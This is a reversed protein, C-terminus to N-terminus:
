VRKARGRVQHRKILNELVGIGDIRIAVEDGDRPSVDAPPVM